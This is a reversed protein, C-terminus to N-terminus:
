LTDGNDAGIKGYRSDQKNLYNIVVPIVAAGMAVILPHVDATTLWSLLAGLAAGSAIKVLSGEWTQALWKELKM